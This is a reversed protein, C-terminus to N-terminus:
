PKLVNKKEILYFNGSFSNPSRTKFTFKYIKKHSVVFHGLSTRSSCVLFDVYVYIVTHSVHILCSDFDDTPSSLTGMYTTRSPADSLKCFLPFLPKTASRISKSTSHFCPLLLLSAFSSPLIPLSFRLASPFPSLLAYLPHASIFVEGNRKTSGPSLVFM